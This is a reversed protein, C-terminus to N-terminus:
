ERKLVHQQLLNNALPLPGGSWALFLGLLARGRFGMRCKCLWAKLSAHKVGPASKSRLSTGRQLPFAGGGAHRGQDMAM